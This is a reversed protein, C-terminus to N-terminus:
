MTTKKDTSTKIGPAQSRTWFNFLMFCNVIFCLLINAFYVYSRNFSKMVIYTMCVNPVGYYSFLFIPDRDTAVWDYLVRSNAVSISIKVREFATFQM